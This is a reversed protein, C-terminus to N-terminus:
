EKAMDYIFFVIMLFFSIGSAVFVEKIYPWGVFDGISGILALQLGIAMTTKVKTTIM